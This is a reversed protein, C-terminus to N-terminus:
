FLVTVVSTVPLEMVGYLKLFACIFLYALLYFEVIACINHSKLRNAFYYAQKIQGFIVASHCPYFHCPFLVCGTEYLLSHILNSSVVVLSVTDFSVSM